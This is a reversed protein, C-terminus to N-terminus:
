SFHITTSKGSGTVGLFLIIDKDQIRKATDQTKKILQLMFNFDVPQIYKLLTICERLLEATSIPEKMLITNIKNLSKKVSTDILGELEMQQNLQQILPVIQDQTLLTTFTTETSTIEKIQHLELIKENASFHAVLIALFKEACDPLTLAINYREYIQNLEIDLLSQRERMVPASFSLSLSREIQNSSSRSLLDISDDALLNTSTKSQEKSAEVPESSIRVSTPTQKLDATLQSITLKDFDVLISDIGLSCFCKKSLKLLKERKKKLRKWNKIVQNM